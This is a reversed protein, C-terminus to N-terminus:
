SVSDADNADFGDLIIYKTYTDVQKEHSDLSAEFEEVVNEHYIHKNIESIAIDNISDGDFLKDNNDTNEEM